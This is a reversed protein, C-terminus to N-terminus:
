MYKAQLNRAVLIRLYEQPAVRRNPIYTSKLIHMYQSFSSIEIRDDTMKCIVSNHM